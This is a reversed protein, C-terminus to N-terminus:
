EKIKVDLGNIEVGENAPILLYKKGDIIRSEILHSFDPEVSIKIHPAEISFKKVNMLNGPTLVTKGFQDSCKEEFSEAAEDSVGCEKLMDGIDEASIELPEPDKSEKHKMVKDRLEGHITQVLDFSCEGALAEAMVGNFTKEQDDAPMLPDTSFVSDIFEQHVEGTSRSYFLANYINACRDDFAPFIFGFETRTVRQDSSMCRFEKERAAYGLEAKGDKVPCVACILYTFVADSAEDFNEGDSGKKPVDYSDCALLIIYNSDLEVSETILKFFTGRAEDDKLKTNRLTMLLKHRDSEMVQQTTFSIDLMNRGPTGSLVKKMLNFYMEKESENMMGVSLDFDDLIEKNTNVYCCYIDSVNSRKVNIRRRIEAIEKINM